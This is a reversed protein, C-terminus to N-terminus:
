SVGCKIQLSRGGACIDRCNANLPNRKAKGTSETKPTERQDGIACEFNMWGRAAAKFGRPSVLSSKVAIYIKGTKNQRLQACENTYRPIMRLYKIGKM